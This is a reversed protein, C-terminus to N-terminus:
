GKSESPDENTRRADRPMTDVAKKRVADADLHSAGSTKRARAREDTAAELVHIRLRAILLEFNSARILGEYVGAKQGSPIVGVEVTLLSTVEDFRETDAAPEFSVKINGLIAAKEEEPPRERGTRKRQPRQIETPEPDLVAHIRLRTLGRHRIPWM